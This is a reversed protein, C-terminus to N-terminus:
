LPKGIYLPNFLSFDEIDIERKNALLFTVDFHYYYKRSFIIAFSSIISLVVDCWWSLCLVFKYAIPAVVFQSVSFDVCRPQPKYIKFLM